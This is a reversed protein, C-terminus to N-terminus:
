RADLVAIIVGLIGGVSSFAIYTFLYTLVAMLFTSWKRTHFRLAAVSTYLALIVIMLVSTIGFGLALDSFLYPIGYLPLCVLTGHAMTYIGFVFTEALNYRARWGPVAWRVVPVYIATLLLSMYMSSRGTWDVLTELFRDEDLDSLAGSEMMPTLAEQLYDVYAVEMLSFFLVSLASALVFYTGPRIYRTRRGVVYDRPVSGPSVTMRWVTHLLGSELDFIRALFDRVLRRLTLREGLHRQGCASCYAGVLHSGCNPCHAASPLVEPSTGVDISERGLASPSRLSTGAVTAPVLRTDTPRDETPRQRTAHKTSPRSEPPSSPATDQARLSSSPDSM